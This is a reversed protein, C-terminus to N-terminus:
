DSVPHRFHLCVGTGLLSECGGTRTLDPSLMCIFAVDKGFFGLFAFPIQSIVPFNVLSVPLVDLEQQAHFLM